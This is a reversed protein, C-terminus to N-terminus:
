ASTRRRCPSLSVACGSSSVCRALIGVDPTDLQRTRIDRVRADKVAPLGASSFAPASTRTAPSMAPSCRCSHAESTPRGVPSAAWYAPSSHVHDRRHRPAAVPAAWRQARRLDGPERLRHARPRVFRRVWSRCTISCRSRTRTTQVVVEVVRRRRRLTSRWYGPSASNRWSACSRWLSATSLRRGRILEHSPRVIFPGAMSLRRSAPARRLPAARDCRAALSVPRSRIRRVSDRATLTRIHRRNIRPGRGLVGAVSAPSPSRLRGRAFTVIAGASLDSAMTDLNDIILTAIQAHHASRGFSRPHLIAEVRSAGGAAHRLRHRPLHHVTTASHGTSSRTTPHTRSDSTAFRSPTM